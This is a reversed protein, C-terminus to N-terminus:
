APGPPAMLESDVSRMLVGLSPKPQFSTAKEPLLHGREMARDLLSYDPAPLLVSVYSATAANIAEEVSHHHVVDDSGASPLLDQHLFEVASTSADEPLDIVMWRHGDTAVLARPGFARLAEAEPLERTTVDITDAATKLAQLSRRKFTRHIPGLFFPTDDQDVVMTLGRDWPSGPFKEQLRLYAAYRHHGDAIMFRGGALGEAITGLHTEDVIRWLRHDQGSRDTYAQDPEQRMVEHMAERVAAPGRHVLLIPAPNIGMEQMRAALEDAQEPHIAEHAFVCREEHTTARTSLQLGGVLGRITMGHVSYEHLYLSPELDVAVFGEDQWRALRSAVDRYPRAFARATSPNAVKQPSLRVGRFPRLEVPRAPSAPIEVDLPPAEGNEHM